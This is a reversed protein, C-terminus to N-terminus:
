LFVWCIGVCFQTHWQLVLFCHSGCYMCSCVWLSLESIFLYMIFALFYCADALGHLFQLHFHSITHGSQLVTQRTRLFKFTCNGYSGAIGSKPVYGFLYIVFTWVFIQVCNYKCNGFPLFLWIGLSLHASIFLIDNLWLFSHLVSM